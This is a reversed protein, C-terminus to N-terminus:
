QAYEKLVSDPLNDNYFTTLFNHIDKNYFYFNHNAYKKYVDMITINEETSKKHMRHTEKIQLGLLKHKKEQSINKLKEINKNILGWIEDQGVQISAIINLNKQFQEQSNQLNKFNIAAKSTQESNVYLNYAITLHSFREGLMDVHQHELSKLDRIIDISEVCELLITDTKEMPYLNVFFCLALFAYNSKM